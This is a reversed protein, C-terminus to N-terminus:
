PRPSRHVMISVRHPAVKPQPLDGAEADVDPICVLVTGSSRQGTAPTSLLAEIKPEPSSTPPPSVGRDTPPPSTAEVSLAM